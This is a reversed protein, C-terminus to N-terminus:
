CIPVVWCNALENDTRRPARQTGFRITTSTGHLSTPMSTVLLRDVGTM